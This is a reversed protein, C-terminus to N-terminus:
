LDEILVNVEDEYVLTGVTTALVTVKYLVADTGTSFTVKIVNAVRSVAVTLGAPTVEVTQSAISDSGGALVTAYNIDFDLKERSQKTISGLLAM